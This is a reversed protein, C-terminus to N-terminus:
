PQHLKGRKTLLTRASSYLVYGLTFLLACTLPGVCFLSAVFFALLLWLLTLYDKIASSLRFPARVLSTIEYSWLPLLEPDGRYEIEFRQLGNI